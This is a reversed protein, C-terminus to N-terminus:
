IMTVYRIPAITTLATAASLPQQENIYDVSRSFEHRAAMLAPTPLFPISSDTFYIYLYM